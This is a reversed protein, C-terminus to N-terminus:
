NRVVWKFDKLSISVEIGLYIIADAVGVISGSFTSSHPGSKGYIVFDGIKRRTLRDGWEYVGRALLEPYEPDAGCLGYDSQGAWYGVFEDISSWVKLARFWKRDEMRCLAVGVESKILGWGCFLPPDPYLGEDIELCMLTRWLRTALERGLPKHSLSCRLDEKWKRNNEGKREASPIFDEIQKRTLRLNNLEYPHDALLEPFQPDDGCLGYDSQTAWYKVFSGKDSWTNIQRSYEFTAEYVKYLGIGGENKMLGIGCYYYDLHYLGDSVFLDELAHWLRTPLDEGFPERSLEPILEWKGNSDGAM